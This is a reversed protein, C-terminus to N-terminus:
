LRGAPLRGARIAQTQHDTFPRDFIASNEHYARFLHFIYHMRELLDAWDAAGCDACDAPEVGSLLKVLAPEDIRVLTSPVEAKLHSGLRLTVDPMRLAMMTESIARRTLDRAFRRYRKVLPAFLILLLRVGPLRRKLDDATDPAAEMARQIEPQLRTQEHFGIEINALLMLQARRGPQEENGAEHYHRFASRLLEQGDPPPGPALGDLFANLDAAELYRAFERGIEEFVKRNGAAVAHSAREFADFPSHIAQAVSGLRSRPNFLGRRLLFRWAGLLPRRMQWEGRLLDALRDGLDEGRITCGAQRSAWTAFSCWNAGGGIRARAAVSLRAYCDTIRLNRVCADEVAAIAEVEFVTPHPDAHSPGTM